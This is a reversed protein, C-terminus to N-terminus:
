RRDREIADEVDSLKSVTQEMFVSISNLEEATFAFSEVPIFRIEDSNIVRAIEGIKVAGREVAWLRPGIVTIKLYTMFHSKEQHQHPVSYELRTWKELGEKFDRKNRRYSHFILHQCLKDSSRLM